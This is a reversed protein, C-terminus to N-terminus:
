LAEPSVTAPRVLGQRELHRAFNLLTLDDYKRSILQAGFPLGQPGTFVPLNLVPMGCLTWLPCTDLNERPEEGKPAEGNSSLTILADYPELLADMATALREQEAVTEAYRAPTVLSGREMMERFRSSLLAPHREGEIRFYYALCSEYIETHIDYARDFRAPLELEKVEHGRRALDGAFTLLATRAYDQTRDWFPGRLLGIRWPRGAPSRDRLKAAVMPYDPGSVRLVDLMLMVDDLNRSCFGVHDLTDTTKLMGTRPILGFSPKMGYVGCFSAPRITSGATQTCLAAPVMGAAVAAVSGSSSTGPTHDVNHPNRTPGPWHVSFEATVTKGPVIAGELRLAAVARADNGAMYGRRIPSGMQTPFKLTNFVDKVGIPIGCLRRSQQAEAPLSDATRAQELAHDRDLCAWAKIQPELKEIRDLCSGVLDVATIEGAMIRAIAEVAGLRFLEANM